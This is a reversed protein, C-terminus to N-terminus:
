GNAQVAASLAQTESDLAAELETLPALEDATAGNAIAAEVATAIRASIGEILTKASAMVGRTQEIQETLVGVIENAM